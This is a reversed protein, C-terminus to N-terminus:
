WPSVCPQITCSTFGLRPTIPFDETMVLSHSTTKRNSGYCCSPSRRNTKASHTSLIDDMGQLNFKM